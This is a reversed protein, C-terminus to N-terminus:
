GAAGHTQAGSLIQLRRTYEDSDIEGRAFLDALVQEPTLRHGTPTGAPGGRSLYRVLVVLGAIMSGWFLLNSATMVAIGWGGMGNGWYMM